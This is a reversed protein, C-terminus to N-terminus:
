RKLGEEIERAAKMRDLYLNDWSESLKSLYPLLLREAETLPRSPDGELYAKPPAPKAVPTFYAPSPAAYVTERISPQSAACGGL